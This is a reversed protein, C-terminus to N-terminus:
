RPDGQAGAPPAAGSRARALLLGRATGDVPRGRLWTRRVVGRLTRGAYPTLPHRQRLAGADVTWRAEPAFWVVDADAGVALAGKRDLGVLRAPAAAMWGAVDALTHGRRRAETWVAALGLELSAIGGWAAGFDGDGKLAPPCPSHDSVVCGLVGAALGDWLLDRNADERIPPCCTFAVGGDPVEEAALCLYHPCTEASVALGERQADAVIPLAAAASVHVVHIRTGHRRALDVLTAIAREEAEPPRSRLFDRYARGSPAPQSALVAADEAHVVLLAGLVAVRAAVQELTAADCAPFEEVGSDAMFAKFGFVGAEHLAALDGANGPVAGGWFGVDVHCRRMAAARKADLAAVDITPPLSNLPMDVITTVGGAAAAATATDFGEWDARGPDNCHVHTDVLGPLLAGDGADVDEGAEVPEEYGVLDAIAGDRVCVTAPRVGDPTVVQRARLALDLM